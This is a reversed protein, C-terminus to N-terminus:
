LKGGEYVYNRNHIIMALGLGATSPSGLVSFRRFDFIFANNM